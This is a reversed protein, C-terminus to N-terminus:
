EAASKTATTETKGTDLEAPLTIKIM